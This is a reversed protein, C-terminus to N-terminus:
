RRWSGRLSLGWHFRSALMRLCLGTWLIWLTRGGARCTALAPVSEEYLAGVRGALPHDPLPPKVAPAEELEVIAQDAIPSPELATRVHLLQGKKDRVVWGHSMYPCPGLLQMTRYPMSLQGARHWRKSKVLVSAGFRLMPPSELGLRELQLRVRQEAAHRLAVPWFSHPLGADHLFLRARRKLQNVEGEVRGNAKSDDGATM